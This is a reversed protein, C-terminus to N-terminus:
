ALRERLLAQVAQPDAGKGARKLVGGTFFGMLKAEGARFRAVEDPHAALVADVHPALADAEAVRRLGKAEIITEPEGEAMVMADLVTRAAARPVDGAEVLRVLRGFSEPYFAPIEAHKADLARRLDHVTMTAALAPEAGAERAGTFYRELDDRVALVAAEEEGVGLAVFADFRARDAADLGATVDRPAEPAGKPAEARAVGGGSVSLGAGGSGKAWSDRLGVIRNFVLAHPRSDVPDPWFYGTREFQFRTGPAAGAAHPEVVGDTEVLSAPNLADRFDDLAEPAPDAFLRDYLRFRAPVGHAASVWHIVGKVKRGEAAGGSRTAPDIEGRLEVVEGADDRVVDTCRVVYAHRLRVEAGPALRHWGKPPAEAFDERDVFVERTLPVRRTTEAGAPPTVDHPWLPADLEETHGEPVNTLVLKLPRAVALVRPAVGNLDDRVAHDYLAADIRGNVNSVGVAECFARIAEPRVGRRRIGAITSLRPDDWGAVHGDEVLARLKRKSTVAYDLNLRAFEYQRNRPPVVGIADLYWDYLERNVDFELTCLSHTIREIADSQGHAWDYLPYIKWADGQRYHAAHRIRYLIPDRMKMNPHAMSIKARLVRAGDAFAGAKMRRLLDLNEEPTRDRFPSDVGPETVTGRHARIAEEDQDDVYAKGKTVLLEAWAYLQGFYDSTFRVDTPAYGLWRVAEELAAVFEPRETEPNTDDYRLYCTGSYDAALGFNLCISKAHGIHPFGNPEPPFRLAVRGGYTGAAVDREIIERLFHNPKEPEM